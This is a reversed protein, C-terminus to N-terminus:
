FNTLDIPRMVGFWKITKEGIAGADVHIIYIGSGVPINKENKLDWDLSTDKNENPAGGATQNSSDLARKLKRVLTGNVNYISVTCNSPLNTIKIRNDVSSKEYGSFAYYPNPVVNILDLASKALELSNTTPLIESNDFSYLPLFDNTPPPTVVFGTGTITTSSATFTDGANYTSGGNTVSGGTVYYATGIAVPDNASLIENRTVFPEYNKKVRLRIKVDTPPIMGEVLSQGPRLTAMSTWICDKWVDRKSSVLGSVLLDAIQKGEDYRPVDKAPNTPNGGNNDFIFIYHGGGFIPDFPGDIDSVPNWIMDNGRFAAGYSSNEGYAINLREGTEVNIAYGPFWGMGTTRTLDGEAANYGADGAQKGSKDISPQSDRLDGKDAGGQNFGSIFGMEVVPARTWKSKDSTFVIDVSNVYTLKLQAEAVSRWKPGFTDKSALKYPAWTGSILGEWQEDPTLDTADTGALIWNQHGGADNDVVGTLWRANVNDFIIEEDLIGGGNGIADATGVADVISVEASLGWEPIIQEYPTGLDRASKVTDSTTLNTLEWTSTEVTGDLKLEYMGPAVGIPDIVKVNAPGASREYTPNLSIHFPSALIEAVSEDTLDLNIGGNGQGEIRTIKPGEGYNANINTGGVEAEIKHPIGSYTKINNRGACYKKAQTQNADFPLSPDFEKYNNYAYSIVTFYYTRHNVLTPDGSAFADQTIKFSHKIGANEGNVMEAPVYASLNDDYSFNVIQSISDKIDVQAILRILDPNGIDATRVTANKLQYIQYGQFFYTRKVSDPQVASSITPDIEAYLEVKDTNTNELTLILEKDLERIAVDPADPCDLVAFCNDFLAQAKDDALKMLNISAAPGGSTARAWVVGVTIYNVAGPQLTFPGASQLFRRDAPVNGATVENWPTAFDPDTDDPFMFNCLPATADRGDGGYTIPQGDGWIGQLYNYFHNAGDPNGNPASNVNNYYVFKAMSIQEGVEDIVGDRDNDVGDDLM